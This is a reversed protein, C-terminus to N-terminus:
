VENTQRARATEWAVRYKRLCCSEAAKLQYYESGISMLLNRSQVLGLDEIKELPWALDGCRLIGDKLTLRDTCLKEQGHEADLRFATVNEDELIAGEELLRPLRAKQWTDWQLINEFPEAPSFTGFPTFEWSKGCACSLMKGKSSLKGPRHCYPCLYLVTQLNEARRRSRYAVPNKAQEQWIDTHIDRQIMEEIRAADMAKLDQPSYTGVLRCTMKGPRLGKGWRPATLYGGEFRFTMLTAGSMKVLRGTSPAMPATVGDWTCEGEVFLSVSRGARLKRLVAMATDAGSAGKRRPIPDFVYKLFKSVFGLRFLHESAVFHTHDKRYCLSLLLPDFNTVHNCIILTPGDLRVSDYSYRFFLRLFPTLLGALLRNLIRNHRNSQKAM